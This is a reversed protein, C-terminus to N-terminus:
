LKGWHAHSGFLGAGGLLLLAAGASFSYSAVPWAARQAPTEPQVGYGHERGIEEILREVARRDAESLGGGEAALSRSLEVIRGIEPASFAGVPRVRGPGTGDDYPLGGPRCRLVEGSDEALFLVADESESSGHCGTGPSSFEMRYPSEPPRTVLHVVLAVAAVLVGAAGLCCLVTM